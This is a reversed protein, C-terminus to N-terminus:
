IKVKLLPKFIFAFVTSAIFFYVLWWPIGLFLQSREPYDIYISQVDSGLGFPEEWPNLLINSWNWGPREVSVRMLGDGIALEKNFSQEGMRFVMLHYGGELAKIKWYLQKNSYVRVPGSIVEIASMPEIVVEEWSAEENTSFEMTVLAEQGISLPRSHYWLGLQVLLLTLPVVAILMPRIYHFLVLFAGKFVHGESSLIVSIDDKFLKIALMNAKIDDRIRGIANQNSTYKFIILLLVGAFASIITNSLWGPIISVPAFLFGGVANVPINILRIIQALFDTM